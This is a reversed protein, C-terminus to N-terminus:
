VTKVSYSDLFLEDAYISTEIANMHLPRTGIPRRKFTIEGTTEDVLILGIDHTDLLEYDVNKEYRSLLALYSEDTFSKYRRAQLIGSKWDRLKAEIAVLKLSLREIAYSKIYVGKEIQQVYGDKLLYAIAAQTTSDSAKTNLRADNLKFPQEDELGLYLLLAYYNSIPKRDLQNSKYKFSKAFVLDAIGYGAAFERVFVDTKFEGKLGEALWSVMEFESITQITKIKSSVRDHITTSSISQTLGDM